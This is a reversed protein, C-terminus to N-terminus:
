DPKEYGGALKWVRTKGTQLPRVKITGRPVQRANIYRAVQVRVQDYNRGIDLCEGSKLVNDLLWFMDAQLSRAEPPPIGRRVRAEGFHGTWVDEGDSAEAAKRPLEADHAVYKRRSM